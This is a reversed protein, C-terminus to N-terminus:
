IGQAVGKLVQAKCKAAELRAGWGADSFRTDIERSEIFLWPIARRAREGNEGVGDGLLLDGTPHGIGILLYVIKYSAVSLSARHEIPLDGRPTRAIAGGKFVLDVSEGVLVPM